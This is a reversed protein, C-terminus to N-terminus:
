REPVLRAFCSGSAARGSSQVIRAFRQGASEAELTTGIGEERVIVLYQSEARAPFSLIVPTAGQVQRAAELVAGRGMMLADCLPAAATSVRPVATGLLTALVLAKRIGDAQLM